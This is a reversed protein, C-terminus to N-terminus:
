LGWGRVRLAFAVKVSGSAIAFPKPVGLTVAHTVLLVCRPGDAHCASAACVRDWVRGSLKAGIHNSIPKSISLM